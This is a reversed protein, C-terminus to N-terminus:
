DSKVQDLLWNEYLGRLSEKEIKRLLNIEEELRARMKSAANHSKRFNEYMRQRTGKKYAYTLKYRSLNYQDFHSESFLAKFDRAKQNHILMEPERLWKEPNDVQIGFQLNQYLYFLSLANQIGLFLFM